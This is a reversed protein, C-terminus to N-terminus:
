NYFFDGAIRTVEGQTDVRWLARDGAVYLDGEGNFTIGEFRRFENHVFEVPVVPFQTETRKNNGQDSQQNCAWIIVMLVLIGFFSLKTNLEKM